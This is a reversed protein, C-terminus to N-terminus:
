GDLMFYFSLAVSAVAFIGLMRGAWRGRLSGILGLVLVPALSLGYRGSVGPNADYTLYVSAALVVGGLYLVPLAVVGLWHSWRRPRVFLWALGGALILYQLVNGMFVQLNQSLLGEPTVAAASTRFAAYSDTLPALLSVAEGVTTSWGYAGVRLVAFTPLDRPNILARAHFVILWALVSVGGGIVLAAAHRSWTSGTVRRIVSDSSRDDTPREALAVIMFLAAVAVIPFLNTVDLTCVLFAAIGLTPLAWRGRRRWALAGLFAILGGAFLASAMNSVMSSEYLVVPATALLLIGISIAEPKLELLRGTGWVLVLGAALWVIGTLRTADLSDIGLADEPIVRLAATVAYYTPPQQAEYQYSGAASITKANCPPYVLGHLAVGRCSITRLTSPLLLQGLRPLSGEAIRDVYDYHAAEDIPSLMPNEVIHVVILSAPVLVCTVIALLLARPGPFCHRLLGRIGAPLAESSPLGALTM